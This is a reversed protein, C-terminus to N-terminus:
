KKIKSIDKELDDLKDLKSLDKINKDLIILNNIENNSLSLKEM